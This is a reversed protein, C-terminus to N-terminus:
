QLQWNFRSRPRIIEEATQDRQSSEDTIIYIEGGDEFNDLHISDKEDHIKMFFMIWVIFAIFLCLGLILLLVGFHEAMSTRKSNVLMRKPGWCDCYTTLSKWSLRSNSNLKLDPSALVLERPPPDPSEKIAKSTTAKKAHSGSINAMITLKKSGM